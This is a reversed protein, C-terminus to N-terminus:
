KKFKFVETVGEEDATLTGGVVTFTCPSEWRDVNYEGKGNEYTYTIDSESDYVQDGIKQSVLRKGTQATEFVLTAVFSTGEGSVWTTGTLTTPTEMEPEKDGKKCSVLSIMAVAMMAVLAISFFKKM